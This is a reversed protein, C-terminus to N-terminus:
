GMVVEATCRFRAVSSHAAAKGPHPDVSTKAVSSSIVTVSVDVLSTGVSVVMVEAVLGAVAM